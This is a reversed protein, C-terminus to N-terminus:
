RFVGQRRGWAVLEVAVAVLVLREADDLQEWDLAERANDRRLQHIRRAVQEPDAPEVAFADDDDFDGFTM